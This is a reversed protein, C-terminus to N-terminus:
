EVLRKRLMVAFLALPVIITFVLHHPFEPISTALNMAYIGDESPSVNAYEAGKADMSFMVQNGDDSVAYLEPVGRGPPIIYERYGGELAIVSISGTFAGGRYGCAQYGFVLMESNPALLAIEKCGVADGLRPLDTTLRTGTDVVVWKGNEGFILHSGDPTVDLTSSEDVHYELLHNTAQGNADTIWFGDSASYVIRGDSAIDFDHAFRPLSLDKVSGARDLKYLAGGELIYISESDASFRVRKPYANPYGLSSSPISTNAIHRVVEATESSYVIMSNDNLRVHILSKGSDWDLLSSMSMNGSPSPVPQIGRSAFLAEVAISSSNESKVQYLVGDVGLWRATVSMSWNGPSPFFGDNIEVSAECTNTKLYAPLVYSRTDSNELQLEFVLIIWRQGLVDWGTSPDVFGENSIETFDIAPCLRTEVSFSDGYKLLDASITPQFTYKDSIDTFELESPVVIFSQLHNVLEVRDSSYRVEYPGSRLNDSIPLSFNFEGKSDATFDKSFITSNASDAISVSFVLGEASRTELNGQRLVLAKADFHATEGRVFDYPEFRNMGTISFLLEVRPTSFDTRVQASAHENDPSLLVSLSILGALAFAVLARKPWPRM